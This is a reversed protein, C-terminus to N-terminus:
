LTNARIKKKLREVRGRITQVRGGEKSRVIEYYFFDKPPEGRKKRKKM